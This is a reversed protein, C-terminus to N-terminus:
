FWSNNTALLLHISVTGIIYHFLWCLITNPFQKYITHIIIHLQGSLLEYVQHLQALITTPLSTITSSDSYDIHLRHKQTTADTTVAKNLQHETAPVISRSDDTAMGNIHKQIQDNAMHITDTNRNRGFFAGFISHLFLSSASSSNGYQMAAPHEGHIVHVMVSAADTNPKPETRDMKGNNDYPTQQESPLQVLWLTAGFSLFIYLSLAYVHAFGFLHPARLLWYRIWVTYLIIYIPHM